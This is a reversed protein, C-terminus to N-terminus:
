VTKRDLRYLRRANGNLFGELTERDLGLAAIAKANHRPGPVGPWDTGFIMKEALREFNYNKYYEPLKHPPLGSVEIFVNERMLTIFAAADFWWGRGGHALVVTLDPFDRAVDEILEPNAYRNTSGPFISTGCHFVVPFGEAECFAYVPYLMRDNPPFSGHVPHLKLGVAGLDMQRKLEDVMPHHLHPSLNAMLRFREPNHELLPLLDEVPQIGTSRPSYECFLVAIDVGEREFYRDFLEPVLTGSGDYLSYLEPTGFRDAWEKWSPKITPLRVAHVHADVLQIGDIM